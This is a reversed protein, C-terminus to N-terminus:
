SRGGGGRGSRAAVAGACGAPRSKRFGDGRRRPPGAQTVPEIRMPGPVIELSLRGPRPRGAVALVGVAHIVAGDDSGLPLLLLRGARSSLGFRGPNRLPLDLIAPEDFLRAVHAALPARAAGSFFVSLPMGRPDMGLLTTVARGAVRLRAVGPAVRSMLFAHPLADGLRTLDLDRRLPVTGTGARLGSWAAEVQGFVASSPVSADRQPEHDRMESTGRGTDVDIKM